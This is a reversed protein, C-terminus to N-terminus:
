DTARRRAGLTRWQRWAPRPAFRGVRPPTSRRRTVQGLTWYDRWWDEDHGRSGAPPWQKWAALVAQHDAVQRAHAKRRPLWDEAWALSAEDLPPPPAPAPIARPLEPLAFRRLWAHAGILLWALDRWHDGPVRGVIWGSATDAPMPQWRSRALLYRAASSPPHGVPWMIWGAFPDAAPAVEGNDWADRQAVFLVCRPLEWRTKLERSVSEKAKLPRRTPHQPTNLLAVHRREFLARWRAHNVRAEPWEMLDRGAQQRACTRCLHLRNRESRHGGAYDSVIVGLTLDTPTPVRGRPTLSAGCVECTLSGATSLKVIVKDRWPRNRTRAGRRALIGGLTVMWGALHQLDLRDRPTLADLALSPPLSDTEMGGQYPPNQLECATRDGWALGRARGQERPSWYVRGGKSADLRADSPGRIAASSQLAPCMCGVWWLHPAGFCPWLGAFGRGAFVQAM